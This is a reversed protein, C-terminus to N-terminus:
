RETANVEGEKITTMRRPDCFTHNAPLGAPISQFGVRRRQRIADAEARRSAQSRREYIRGAWFMLALASVLMVTGSLM